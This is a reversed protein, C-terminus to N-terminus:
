VDKRGWLSIERGVKDAPNAVLFTHGCSLSLFLSRRADMGAQLDFTGSFIDPANELFDPQMM